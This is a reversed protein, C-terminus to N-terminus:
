DLFTVTQVGLIRAAQRQEDERIFSLREPTMSRDHSGKDGKTIVLYQIERGESALRFMTGGCFSEADDPHAIVVLIRQGESSVLVPPTPM